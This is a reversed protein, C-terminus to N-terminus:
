QVRVVPVVQELTQQGSTLRVEITYLGAAGAKVAEKDFSLRQLGASDIALTRSWVVFPANRLKIEAKGAMPAYFEVTLEDKFPNPWAHLQLANPQAPTPYWGTESSQCLSDPISKALVQQELLRHGADNLHVGDGSNYQADIYGSADAVPSWFDISHSGFYATISDRAALQMAIQNPDTFNRPQTTCVWVQVGQAAAAQQMLRFNHLQDAVAFLNAADNSPLNIIVAEPNLSLAKTINRATDITIGVGAALPNGTPLLHYTTYGGMALNTVPYRTDRQYVSNRYRNVWASDPTTAGTGAATSSGIVVIPCHQTSLSIEFPSNSDDHLTDSLVRVLCQTSAEPPVVWSYAQQFAPVADILIWTTGNDTSYLLTSAQQTTSQWTIEVTKSAQWFEGGNPRLLEVSAPPLASPYELVLAGLYFFGYTNTNAPGTATTISITGAPSPALTATVLNNTNDAANLHLTDTTAGAVIYRTERNDAALRSAFLKVTYQLATDLNSLEVAGTPQVDNAFLVPNGYFSDGSASAPINLAPNPALTGNTNVGNFSDTVAIAINTPQGLADTLGSLSGTHQNSLNNWPASSPNSGFDVYVANTQATGSFPALLLTCAVIFRLM